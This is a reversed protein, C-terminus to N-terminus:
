IIGFGVSAHSLGNIGIAIPVSSFSNDLSELLEFFLTILDLHLSIKIGPKDIGTGPRQDPTQGIVQQLQQPGFDRERHLNPPIKLQRMPPKSYYDMRAGFNAVPHFDIRPGSSSPRINM